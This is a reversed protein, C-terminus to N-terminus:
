KKSHEKGKVKKKELLLVMVGFTSSKTDDYSMFLYSGLQYFM